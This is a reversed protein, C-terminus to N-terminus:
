DGTYRAQELKRELRQISFRVCVCSECRCARFPHHSELDAKAANIQTIIEDAKMRQREYYDGPTSEAM